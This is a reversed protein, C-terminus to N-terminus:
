SHNNIGIFPSIKVSLIFLMLLHTGLHEPSFLPPFFLLFVVTMIWLGSSGFSSKEPSQFSGLGLAPRKNRINERRNPGQMRSSGAPSSFLCSVEKVGAPILCKSSSAFLAPSSKTKCCLWVHLFVIRPRCALLFCLVLQLQLPLVTGRYPCWELGAM